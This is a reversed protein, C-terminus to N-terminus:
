RKRDLHYVIWSLLKAIGHLLPLPLLPILWAFFSVFVFEFWYRLKKM